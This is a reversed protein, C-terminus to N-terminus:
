SSSDDNDEKRHERMAGVWCCLFVVMPVICLKLGDHDILFGLTVQVAQVVAGLLWGHKSRKYNMWITVSVLAPVLFAWYQSFMSM